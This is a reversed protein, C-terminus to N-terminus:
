LSRVPVRLRRRCAKPHVAADAHAAQQACTPASCDAVLSLRFTTLGGRETCIRSPYACAARGILASATGFHVFRCQLSTCRSRTIGKTFVAHWRAAHVASRRRRRCPVLIQSHERACTLDERKMLDALVLAATTPEDGGAIAVVLATESRALLFCLSLRKGADSPVQQPATRTICGAKNAKTVDALEAILFLVM